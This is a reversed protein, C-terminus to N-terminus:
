IYLIYVKHIGIKQTLNNEKTNDFNVVNTQTKMYKKPLDM